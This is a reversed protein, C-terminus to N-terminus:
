FNLGVGIYASDALTNDSRGSEGAMNIYRYGVDVNLPGVVHWRVGAKGEVYHDVHSSFADPSYYGEGYVSFYRNIPWQVGGGLALAHGDSGRDQNLYLAKGGLTVKLPGVPLTYGLGFGYVDNDNDGHAYSVNGSLGPVLLGFGANAGVYDRGAEGSIGIAYVSSTALLLSGACAIVFKKM